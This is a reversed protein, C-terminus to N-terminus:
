AEEASLEIRKDTSVAAQGYEHQGRYGRSLVCPRLGADALLRCVVRTMPTKGTGGVTLNGISIVPCKLVAQRRLGTRYPLLYAKLGASYAFALGALAGRMLSAGPGRRTGDIVPLLANEANVPNNYKPRM